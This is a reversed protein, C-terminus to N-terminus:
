YWTYGPVPVAPRGPPITGEFAAVLILLTSETLEFGVTFIIIKM